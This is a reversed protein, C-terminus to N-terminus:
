VQLDTPIFKLGLFSRHLYLGGVWWRPMPAVPCLRHCAASIFLTTLVLLATLNVTVIILFFFEKFFNTAQVICLMLITHLYIANMIRRRTVLVM